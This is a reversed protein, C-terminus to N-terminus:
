LGLPKNIIIVEARTNNMKKLHINMTNCIRDESDCEYCRDGKIACPTKLGLRKANQPAAINRARWIAQDLTSEIKNTGFIFYVKRHGFISGAVRNGTGDINVMEGTEAVGNVSTLFVETTLTKKGIEVFTDKDGTSPDIATNNKALIRQLNLVSLTESDGFGVTVGQIEQELYKTAEKADQFYSVKYRNKELNRILRDYKM